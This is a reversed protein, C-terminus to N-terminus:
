ELRDLRPPGKHDVRLGGETTTGSRVVGGTASDVLSKGFPVYNPTPYVRDVVRTVSFVMGRFILGASSGRCGCPQRALRADAANSHEM